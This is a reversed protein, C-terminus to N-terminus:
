FNSIILTIKGCREDVRVIRKDDGIIDGRPSSYEKVVLQENNINNKRLIEIGEFINYGVIDLLM